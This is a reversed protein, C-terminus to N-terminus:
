LIRHVIHLVEAVDAMELEPDPEPGPESQSLILRPLSGRQPLLPESAVRRPRGFAKVTGAARGFCRSCLSKKAAKHEQLQGHMRIPGVPPQPRNRATARRHARVTSLTCFAFAGPVLIVFSAALVHGYDATNVLEADLTNSADLKGAMRLVLSILLTLFVQLEVCCKLWNTQTKRYPWARAHLGFFSFSICTGVFVQVISGRRLLLLLLV